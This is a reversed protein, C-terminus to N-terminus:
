KSRAAFVINISGSRRLAILPIYVFGRMASFGEVTSEKEPRKYTNPGSTFMPKFRFGLSLPIRAYAPAYRSLLGSAHSELWEQYLQRVLSLTRRISLMPVFGCVLRLLSGLFYLYHVYHYCWRSSEPIRGTGSNRRKKRSLVPFLFNKTRPRGKDEKSFVM